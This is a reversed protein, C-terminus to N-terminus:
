LVAENGLIALAKAKNVDDLWYRMCATMTGFKNQIMEYKRAFELDYDLQLDSVTTRLVYDSYLNAAEFCNLGTDGLKIFLCLMKSKKSNRRPHRIQM